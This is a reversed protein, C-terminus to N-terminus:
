EHKVCGYRLLEDMPCDCKNTSGPSAYLTQMEQTTPLDSIPIWPSEIENEFVLITRDLTYLYVSSYMAIEKNTITYVLDDSKLTVKDGINFM